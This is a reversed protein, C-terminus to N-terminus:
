RPLSGLLAALSDALARLTDARAPALNAVDVSDRYLSLAERAEDPDGEAVARRAAKEFREGPDDPVARARLEAPVARERPAAEAGAATEAESPAIADEEVPEPAPEADDALAPARREEGPPRAAEEDRELDGPEAAGDEDSEGAPPAARDGAASRERAREVREVEPSRLARMVDDPERIGEKWLVGVVLIAIAAAAAQPAWRRIRAWPGPVVRDSRTEGTSPRAATEDREEIRDLISARQADWDPEPADAEATAYAEGVHHAFAELEALRERCAECGELHARVRAREDAGLEGTRYRDLTSEDAHSM